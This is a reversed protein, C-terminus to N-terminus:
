DFWLLCRSLRDLEPGVYYHRYGLLRQWWPRRRWALYESVTREDAQRERLRRELAQAQQYTASGLARVRRFVGPGDTFLRMLRTKLSRDKAGVQNAGHQRYLILPDQLFVRRGAGSVLACWWDHLIAEAPVPLALQLLARNIMMTCGTVQNVSLLSLASCAAPDMRQYRVFSACRVTLKEDVVALDTHVLCPVQDGNSAEVQVMAALTVAIKEPLWVDDQDAFAMWRAVGDRLSAQMLNEFNRVAGRGPTPHPVLVLREGLTARYRLLIEMTADSSGDDSVLIRFEQHTQALISEIQQALYKSGNYTALLVDVLGQSM